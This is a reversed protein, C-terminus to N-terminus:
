SQSKCSIAWSFGAGSPYIPKKAIKGAATDDVHACCIQTANVCPLEWVNAIRFAIMTM